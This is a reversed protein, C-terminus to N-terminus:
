PWITQLLAALHYGGKILQTQAIDSSLLPYSAPMNLAWVFYAEGQRNTKESMKELTVDSYALKSIQLTDDAWQYPWNLPDGFNDPRLPKTKVAMEAFQESAGAGMRRLVYAVVTSDWYAHFALRSSAASLSTLKVLASALGSERGPALGPALTLAPAVLAPSSFLNASIVALKVDDLLFNNGGNSNFITVSDIQAASEPALFHGSKEIFANGVHLPQHIDGVLHVILLLAQRRTFHHPNAAGASTGQLVAIAQQMIHVIDDDFSGVAGDRYHLHQFPIDTYHYERHKPNASTFALMEATQAGCFTGKVCDAWNAISELTEGPLLLKNLQIQAPSDKILVDAIAGVARHGDAGWALADSASFACCLTLTVLLNKIM